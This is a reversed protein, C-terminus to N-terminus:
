KSFFIYHKLNGGVHMESFISRYLLLQYDFETLFVLSEKLLIKLHGTLCEDHEVTQSKPYPIRSIQFYRSPTIAALIHSRRLDAAAIVMKEM